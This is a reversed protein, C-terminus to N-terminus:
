HDYCKVVFLWNELLKPTIRNLIWNPTWFLAWFIEAKQSSAHTDFDPLLKNEPTITPVPKDSKVPQLALLNSDTLRSLHAAAEDANLKANQWTNGVFTKPITQLNKVYRIKAHRHRFIIQICKSLEQGQPAARFWALFNKWPLVKFIASKWSCMKEQSCLHSLFNWLKTKWRIFNWNEWFFISILCALLVLFIMLSFYWPVTDIKM